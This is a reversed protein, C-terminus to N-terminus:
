KMKRCQNLLEQAEQITTIKAWKCGRDMIEKAFEEEGESLKQKSPPLTGDKIEVAVTVGSYFIVCDCCNKLRHTLWVYAGAKRFFDIIDSQNSDTKASYFRPM